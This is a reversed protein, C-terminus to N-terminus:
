GIANFLTAAIMFIYSVWTALMGITRAFSAGASNSLGVAHVVRGSFLLFGAVHVLVAAAPTGTLALVLIGALGAPIYETANGLARIAQSLELIGDDGLNVRHKQRQRVVLLSLILILLLNLGVWLAAAHMANDM